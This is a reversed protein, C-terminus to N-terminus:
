EIRDFPIVSLEVLRQKFKDAYLHAFKEKEASPITFYFDDRKEWDILEENETSPREVVELYHMYHGFEHPLTRYLQTNRVHEPNYEAVFYRSENVFLHGDLKLREFEKQSDVSMKTSWKLKKSYDVAEIIIAPHFDNEFEFSYILRGWVPSLITEKRKPQRFIILRLDGYDNIPINSVIREVDEVTCAHQCYERTKEIVFIFEHGNIVKTTKEYEDLREYFTKSTECPSPIILKNSQGYGQKSTGINRNRRTPNNM